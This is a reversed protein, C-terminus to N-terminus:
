FVKTGNYNGNELAEYFIDKDRHGLNSEQFKGLDLYMKKVVNEYIEREDKGLQKYNEYMYKTPRIIPLINYTIKNKLYCFSRMVHFFLNTVNSCLHFPGDLDAHIIIPKLPLLPHFVGRKFKVIYRNNSTTGEPFICLKNFIKGEYFNNQREISKRFSEKRSEESEREVFISGIQSAISGGIPANEVVKMAMFGCGNISMNAVMDYFGIHNCIIVSYKEDKFDYDPGLYKKYVEECEIKEEILSIFNIKLFLTGWFKVIKSICEAQKPDTDCHHYFLRVIKLNWDFFVCDLLSLIARIPFLLLGFLIFSFYNFPDHPMFPAYKENLDIIKDTKPDKFKIKSYFVKLRIYIYNLFIFTLLFYIFFGFLLSM